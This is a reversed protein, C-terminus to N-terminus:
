KKFRAAIGEVRWVALMAKSIAIVEVPTMHLYQATTKLGLRDQCQNCYNAVARWKRRGKLLGHEIQQHIYLGYGRPSNMFQTLSSASLGDARYEVIKVVSNFYRMKLGDAAMRNLSTAETIFKEGDFEHYKYKKWVTTYIVESKDGVVNNRIRDLHTMDLYQANDFTKGVVSADQYAKLGCIGAFSGKEAEPISREIRDAIELADDTLYDDSDCGFFLEGSALEVGRNWARHKGGNPQKKYIIPFFNERAMLDQMVEETNDTSGDDVVIWEFDRFTQRCLSEYLQEIIYGRNYAPTFVTFRM